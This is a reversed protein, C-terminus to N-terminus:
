RGNRGHPESRQDPPRATPAAAAGSSSALLTGPRSSTSRRQPRTDMGSMPAPAAASMIPAPRDVGCRERRVKRGGTVRGDPTATTRSRLRSRGRERFSWRGGIRRMGVRHRPFTSTAPGLVRARDRYRLTADRLHPPSMQRGGRLREAHRPRKHDRRGFRRGRRRGSHLDARIRQPPEPLCRTDLQFVSPRSVRPRRGLARVAGGERTGRASQAAQRALCGFLRRSVGGPGPERQTNRSPRELEPNWWCQRELEPHELESTGGGVRRAPPNAPRPVGCTGV